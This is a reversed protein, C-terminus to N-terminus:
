ETRTTPISGDAYDVYTAIKGFPTTVDRSYLRNKEDYWVGCGDTESVRGSSDYDYWTGKEQRKYVDGLGRSM